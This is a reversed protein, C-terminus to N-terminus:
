FAVAIKVPIAIGLTSSASNWNSTFEVGVKLVAQEVPSYLIYPMARFKGATADTGFDVYNEIDAGVSVMEALPVCVGLGNYLVNHDKNFTMNNQFTFALAEFDKELRLEIATRNLDSNASNTLFAAGVLIPFNEIFKLNAYASALNEFNDTTSSYGLQENVSVAVPEFDLIVRAQAGFSKNSSTWKSAVPAIQITAPGAYIDLLAQGNVLDSEKDVEFGDSVFGLKNEDLYSNVWFGEVHDDSHEEYIGGRLKAVEGFKVGAYLASFAKLPDPTTGAAFTDDAWFFVPTIELGGEFKDGDYFFGVKTDDDFMDSPFANVTPNSGAVDEINVANMKAQIEVTWDKEDAFAGGLLVAGIALLNVIKKM